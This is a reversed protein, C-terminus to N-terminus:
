AANDLDHIIRRSRTNATTAPNHQERVPPQM